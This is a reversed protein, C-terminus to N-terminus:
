AGPQCYVTGSVDTPDVYCHRAGTAPHVYPDDVHQANPPVYMHAPHPHAPNHWHGYKDYWVKEVTPSASVAVLSPGALTFAYAHSFTFSLLATAALPLLLRRGLLLKSM